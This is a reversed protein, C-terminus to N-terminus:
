DLQVDIDWPLLSGISIYHCQQQIGLQQSLTFLVFKESLQM